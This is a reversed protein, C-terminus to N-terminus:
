DLLSAGLRAPLKPASATGAAEAASLCRRRSRSVPGALWALQGVVCGLWSDWSGWGVQWLKSTEGNVPDARVLAGGRSDLTLIYRDWFVLGQARDGVGTIRALEKAEALDM